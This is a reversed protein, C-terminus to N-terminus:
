KIKNKRDERLLKFDFPDDMFRLEVPMICKPDFYSFNLDAVYLVNKCTEQDFSVFFIKYRNKPGKNPKVM